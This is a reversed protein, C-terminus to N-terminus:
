SLCRSFSSASFLLCVAAAAAASVAPSSDLVVPAASLVSSLSVSVSLRSPPSLDLTEAAGAAGAGAGAAAAVDAAALGTSAVTVVRCGCCSEGPSSPNLFRRLMPSPEPYMLVSLSHSFTSSLAEHFFGEIRIEQTRSKWTHKVVILSASFFFCAARSHKYKAHWAYEIIYIDVINPIDVPTRSNQPNKGTKNM